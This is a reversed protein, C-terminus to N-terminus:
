KCEHNGIELHNWRTQCQSVELNSQDDDCLIAPNSGAPFPELDSCPYVSPQSGNCSYNTWFRLSSILAQLLLPCHGNHCRQAGESCRRFACVSPAQFSRASQARNQDCSLHSMAHLGSANFCTGSNASSSSSSVATSAPCTSSFFNAGRWRM